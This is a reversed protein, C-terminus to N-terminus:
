LRPRPQHPRGLYQPPGRGPGAGFRRTCTPPARGRPRASKSPPPLLYATTETDADPSAHSALAEIHPLLMWWVPWGTPDQWDAPVAVALQHIAQDRAADIAHPDGHPDGPEPTRTVAQVLRHIAVADTDATLMIYAALRGIAHLLAPPDALGDLLERPIAEPAYWALIRLM